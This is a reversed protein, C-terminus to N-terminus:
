SGSESEVQNKLFAIVDQFKAANEEDCKVLNEHAHLVDSTNTVTENELTDFEASHGPGDEKIDLLAQLGLNVILEKNREGLQCVTLKGAADKNRIELATGALIGLFTSDMGKCHEFDLIFNTKGDAVMKEMFERFNNCNLYNAKGHIQVAVPDTYASVLFTPQNPDSM